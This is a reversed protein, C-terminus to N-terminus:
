QSNYSPMSYALSMGPYLSDTYLETISVLNLYFNALERENVTHVYTPIHKRALLLPLTSKARYEPMTIAFPGDFRETWTLVDNNSGKYRYLTWIVDEFGFDKVISYSEPYYIQPIIRNEFDPVVKAMIRLARINEEGKVDTVIKATPHENLWPILSELTCIEFRSNDKVLRKFEKLTPVNAADFGFQRKFSGEWDHICVLQGDSTFNFDLEFYVFGKQINLNLANFSNTVNNSEVTGGGHAIRYASFKGESPMQTLFRIDEPSLVISTLEPESQIIYSVDRYQGGKGAILCLGSGYINSAMKNTYRCFEFLLYYTKEGLTQVNDLLAYRFFRDFKFTAELNPTLEVLAPLHFM